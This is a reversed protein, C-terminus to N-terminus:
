LFRREGKGGHGHCGACNQAYLINFSMIQDPPIVESHPGPRGPAHSCGVSVIIPLFALVLLTSKHKM